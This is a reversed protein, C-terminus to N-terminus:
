LDADPLAQHLWPFFSIQSCDPGGLALSLPVQELCSLKDM